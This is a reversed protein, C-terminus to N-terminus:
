LLYIVTYQFYLEGLFQFKFLELIVNKTGRLERVIMYDMAESHCVGLSTRQWKM